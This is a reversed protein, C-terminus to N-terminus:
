HHPETTLAPRQPATLAEVAQRPMYALNLDLLIKSAAAWAAEHEGASPTTRALSLLRQAKKGEDVQNGPLHLLGIREANLRAADYLVKLEAAAKTVEDPTYSAQNDEWATLAAFFMRSSHVGVDFFAGNELVYLPDCRDEGIQQRIAEVIGRAQALRRSVQAESVEREVSQNRPLQCPPFRPELETIRDLLEDAQGGWYRRQESTEASELNRLATIARTRLQEIEFKISAAKAAAESRPAQMARVTELLPSPGTLARHFKRYFRAHRNAGPTMWAEEAAALRGETFASLNELVFLPDTKLVQHQQWLEAAAEERDAPLPRLGLRDRTAQLARQVADRCLIWRLFELTGLVIVPLLLIQIIM